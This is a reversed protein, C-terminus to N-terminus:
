AFQSSVCFWTADHPSLVYQYIALNPAGCYHSKIRTGLWLRYYLRYLRVCGMAFHTVTGERHPIIPGEQHSQSRYARGFRNGTQRILDDRIKRYYADMFRGSLVSGVLMGGGPALFCLGIDTQNLYPYVEEFIVSLSATVGYMVAYITGSFFLLVFIEPYLFM